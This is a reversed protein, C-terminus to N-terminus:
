VKSQKVILDKAQDAPLNLAGRAEAAAAKVDNNETTEVIKDLQGVQDRSLRNGFNKANTALSKYLSIKVGDGTKENSAVALLASQADKANLWGLANGSSKVVDPRADRLASLTAAEAATLDLVSRSIALKQLLDAARLAYDTAAEPDIPVASKGRAKDAAEKIGAADTAQTVSLTQDTASRVAYQSAGTKTIVVKAAGALKQDKAALALLRDVPESGLEESVVLVDVAPLQAAVAVGEEPNSAGVVAYNEKKLADVLANARDKTPMVIVMSPTGTQSIAEALLPVVRDQGTFPKGPVASAVAFASEFRVARDPSAMAEVLPTVNSAFMTSNGIIEQLSKVVKLAVAWEKDRLTRSLANNLYQPGADVGYFHANPQNEARTPDTAGKPLEVERKYNSALWLSLADSQKAGLKMAYESARMAMLENFIPQPVGKRLLGKGEDWYWMNAPANPDRRDAVIDANDYYFKEGLENFSEAPNVSRPDSIGMRQMATSAAIKVAQPQESGNALRALYPVSVNYGIDGIVGILEILSNTNKMETAALLPNLAPRGIDRLASRVGANYETKNPDRLYDILMPVALEGSDRLRQVALQYPRGPRNLRRINEEIYKPNARRARRGENLVQTIQNASDKLDTGQWRIMWSDLDDSRAQSVQEFTELVAEPNAKAALLKDAAGKALDYRAIKGYHWFNEVSQKLDHEADAPQTTATAPAAAAADQAFAPISVSLCCTFVFPSVFRPLRTM